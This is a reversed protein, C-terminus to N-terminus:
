EGGAAVNGAIDCSCVRPLRYRYPIAKLVGCVYGGKLYPDDPHPERHYNATKKPFAQIGGCEVCVVFRYRERLTIVVPGYTKPKLPQTTWGEPPKSVRLPRITTTVYDRTAEVMEAVAASDVRELKPDHRKTVGPQDPDIQRSTWGPLPELAGTPPIGRAHDLIADATKLDDAPRRAFMHSM